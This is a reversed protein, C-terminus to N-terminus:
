AREGGKMQAIYADLVTNFLGTAIQGGDNMSVIEAGYQETWEAFQAFLVFGRAIRSVDKVIIKDVRGATIDAKLANLAPRDLTLGNAGNDTYLKFRGIGRDEAYRLLMDTQNDLNMGDADKAASRCYLATTKSGTQKQMEAEEGAFPCVPCYGNMMANDAGM